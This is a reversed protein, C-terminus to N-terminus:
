QRKRKEKANPYHVKFLNDMRKKQNRLVKKAWKSGKEVSLVDFLTEINKIRTELKTAIESISFGQEFLDIAPHIEEIPEEKPKEVRTDENDGLIRSVFYRVKQVSIGLNEAIEIDSYNDAMLNNIEFAIKARPTYHENLKKTIKIYAM